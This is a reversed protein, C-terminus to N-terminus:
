EYDDRDGRREVRLVKSVGVKYCKELRKKGVLIELAAKDLTSRSVESVKVLWDYGAEEGTDIIEKRLESKIKELRKIEECIDGYRDALHRNTNDEFNQM